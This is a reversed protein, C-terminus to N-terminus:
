IWLLQRQRHRFTEAAQRREDDAADKSLDGYVILCEQAQCRLDVIAKIPEFPLHAIGWGIVGLVITIITTWTAM